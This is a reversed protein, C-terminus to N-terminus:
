THTSSGTNARMESAQSEEYVKRKKNQKNTIPADGDFKQYRRKHAIEKENARDPLEQQMIQNKQDISSDYKANHTLMGWIIRLLKQMIVGLAQKHTKGKSRHKHYIRKMHADHVVATKACMFLVARMSARGKKSMRPILKSDGSEKLEPNTGFYSVLKKATPFRKIYEIEIMIAAGSYSAVGVLSTLLTVEPGQCNSELVKKSQEIYQQKEQIQLALTRVLFESTESKQFAVTNKAKLILKQAKEMDLYNIKSLQEPRLKSILRASPYKELVKLVWIPVSDKCYRMLEPFCSYLVAKLQNILQTKQKRQLFIHTHLSRFSSYSVNQVEYNVADPHAIIYEAIYQSSLADTVNRKLGAQINKKIGAPNLRAVSLPLTKMWSVLSGYWNNEFGGTSELGCYLHTIGNSTILSELRERLGDHGERTDDFQFVKELLQKDQNVLAFDAYGKSVDIGLYGNMSLKPKHLFFLFFDLM